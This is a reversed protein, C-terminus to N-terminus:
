ISHIPLVAEFSAGVLDQFSSTEDRLTLLNHASDRPPISLRM